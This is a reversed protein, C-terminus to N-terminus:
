NNSNFIHMYFNFFSCKRKVTRTKPPRYTSNLRQSRRSNNVIVRHHLPHSSDIAIKSFHAKSQSLIHEDLTCLALIRLCEPYSTDPFIVKTAAKQVKRLKSKTSDSLFQYFVTAGYCLVSRINTCYFLLLGTSNMGLRKLQGM